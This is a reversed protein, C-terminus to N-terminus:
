REMTQLEMPTSRELMAISRWCQSSSLSWSAMTSFGLGQIMMPARVFGIVNLGSRGRRPLPISCCFNINRLDNGRVCHQPDSAKGSSIQRIPFSSRPGREGRSIVVRVINWRRVRFSRRSRGTGKTVRPAVRPSVQGPRPSSVPSELSASPIMQRNVTLLM